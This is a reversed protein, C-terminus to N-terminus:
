KEFVGIDPTSGRPTGAFDVTVEPLVLGKNIAPSGDLPIYWGATYASGTKALQPDGIVDGAGNAAGSPKKSWLNNQLTLQANSAIDAIPATGDQEILNNVFRANQHSGQNIAVNANKTSNVFTNNAILVNVLGGGQNGQWWFFNWTNNYAINNIVINNASPPKYVEDGMMIGVHAGGYSGSSGIMYTNNPTNYVLNGQCLSNTTDSIYINTSYNDYATNGEIVTGNAEFSSVGEGWNEWSTNNRLVAYDTKGDVNDRAASLGSAWGGGSEAGYQNNLANRWIRSNQVTSYDGRALIGTEKNNHSYVNDAVNHQGSMEIGIYPSNRVEIGSVIIWNGSLKLMSTWNAISQGSGEIIPTEGAYALFRIPQAQTGSQTLNVQENYVGGRLYVTNGAIVTKAAKRITQWPLAQTGPNADNGTTAVFYGTLSGNNFTATINRNANITITQPSTVGSIDGSWGGFSWGSDPTATLTVTDGYHYSAQDPTKTVTGNGVRTTTLIYSNQTYTATVTTNGRITVKGGVVNSSWSSLSWGPDPTATLTVVDGDHYTAHNPSRTVSGHNSVITLSYSKSGGHDSGSMSVPLFTKFGSTSQVSQPTPDVQPDAKVLSPQSFMMFPLLLCVTGLISTLHTVSRIVKRKM